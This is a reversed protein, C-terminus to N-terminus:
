FLKLFKLIMDVGAEGLLGEPGPEGSESGLWSRKSVSAGVCISSVWSISVSAAVCNCSVCISVSAGVCIGASISVM